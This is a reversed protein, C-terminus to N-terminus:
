QTYNRLVMLLLQVQKEYKNILTEIKKQAGKPTKKTYQAQLVRVNEEVKKLNNWDEGNKSEMEEIKEIVKMEETVKSSPEMNTM